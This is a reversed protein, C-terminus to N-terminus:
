FRLLIKRAQRAPRHVGLRVRPVRASRGHIWHRHHLRPRTRPRVCFCPQPLGVQHCVRRCWVLGVKWLSRLLFHHHLRRRRRPGEPDFKQPADRRLDRAGLAVGGRQHARIQEQLLEPGRRPRSQTKFGGTAIPDGDDVVASVEYHTDESLGTLEFVAASGGVEVDTTTITGPESSYSLTATMSESDPNNVSVTIDASTQSIRDFAVGIVAGSPAPPLFYAYVRDDGRDAVWMKAGDSWIGWPDRNEPALRIERAPQRQGFGGASLGYAFIQHRAGDVVWATTGDSWMGRPAKYNTALDFAASQGRDGVAGSEDLEYAFLRERVHGVVWMTSGDSWLGALHGDGTSLEGGVASDANGYSPGDAIGYGHVRDGRDAIWMTDADAFVGRPATNAPDLDFSKEALYAKTATDYAYVRDNGGGGDNVVWWTDGDSWIGVAAGNGAELLFDDAAPRLLLEVTHETGDSFTGDFSAQVVFRPESGLGTLVFEASAVAREGFSLRRQVGGLGTLASKTSAMPRQSAAVTWQAVTYPRYRLHIM